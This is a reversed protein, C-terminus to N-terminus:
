DVLLRSLTQPPVQWRKQEAYDRHPRFKKRLRSPEEGVVRIKSLDGEGLRGRAYTMYGVESPDFGMLSAGIADAAVFDTSAIALGMEVPTGDVPGNGEMGVWGDIVALSPPIRKIVQYMNLNMAPYGQHLTNKDQQASGVVMNKLSLTVILCDHTKPIALSVRYDANVMTKALHITVERFNRDYVKAEVSEDENLDVLEIGYDKTIASYGYNKFATRTNTSSGEAVTIRGSSLKQLFDIVAKVTDVHTACVPNNPSVLNPKIVIRKKGRISEEVDGRILELAKTVTGYRNDARALSVTAVM